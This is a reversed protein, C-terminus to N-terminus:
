RGATTPSEALGGFRCGALLLMLPAMLGDKGEIMLMYNERGM